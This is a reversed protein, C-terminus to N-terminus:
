KDLRVVTVSHPPLHLVLNGNVAKASYPKPAVANPAEFTNISDVRDATLVEGIASKATVGAASASINAANNADLNTLALWFKGDKDKAAIADVKPLSATGLKYEGANFTIPLFTADQFPVYM